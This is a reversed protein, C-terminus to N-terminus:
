MKPIRVWGTSIAKGAAGLSNRPVVTVCADGIDYKPMFSGPIAFTVRKIDSDHSKPLVATPSFMRYTHSAVIDEGHRYDVTIAYDYPRAKAEAVAPPFRVKGDGGAKKPFIINVRADDAFQPPSSKKIRVSREQAQAPLPLCWPEDVAEGWFFDRRDIVMKDDYVSVLMGQRAPSVPDLCSFLNELLMNPEAGKKTLTSAGISTFAGRWLTRDDSLTTHSHGSFAVANPYASLIRTTTGDDHTFPGSTNVTDKPHPHQFYFFPKAPDLSKGNKRFWEDLGRIRAQTDWHAGIFDYGCITKRYIPEYPENFCEEWAKAAGVLDLRQKRVEDTKYGPCHMLSRALSVKGIGYENPEIDHNGYIFLKEVRKGNLGKDDPFVEYWAKAVNKLDCLVGFDSMDGCIMVADVDAQRYYKLATRFMETSEWNTIHIDSLVGFRINPRGGGVAAGASFGGVATFAAAAEIFNRRTM